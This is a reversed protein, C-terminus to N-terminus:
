GGPQADDLKGEEKLKTFTVKKCIDTEKVGIVEENLTQNRKGYRSIM